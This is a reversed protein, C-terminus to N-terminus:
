EVHGEKTEDNYKQHFEMVQHELHKLDGAFRRPDDVGTYHEDGYHSYDCGIRFSHKEANFLTVGGHLDFQHGLETGMFMGITDGSQEEEFASFMGHTKYLIVYLTWHSEAAPVFGNELFRPWKSLCLEILAINEQEDYLRKRWCKVLEFGEPVDLFDQNNM